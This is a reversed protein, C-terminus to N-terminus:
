KIKNKTVKVYSNHNVNLVEDEWSRRPYPKLAIM